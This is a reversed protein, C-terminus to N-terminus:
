TLSSGSCRLVGSLLVGIYEGQFEHHSARRGSRPSRPSIPSPSCAFSFHRGPSVVPSPTRPLSGPVPLVAGPAPYSTTQDSALTQTSSGHLLLSTQLQVPDFCKTLKEAVGSRSIVAVHVKVEGNPQAPWWIETGCPLKVPTPPRDLQKPVVCHTGPELSGRRSRAYRLAAGISPASRRRRAPGAVNPSAPSNFGPHLGIPSSLSIVTHRRGELSTSPSQVLSLIPLTTDLPRVPVGSIGNPSHALPQSEFSRLNALAQHDIESVREEDTAPLVPRPPGQASMPCMSRLRTELPIPHRTQFASLSAPDTHVSTALPRPRHEMTVTM